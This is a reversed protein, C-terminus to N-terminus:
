MCIYKFVYTYIYALTLITTELRHLCRQKAEKKNKQKTITEAGYNNNNIANKGREDCQM